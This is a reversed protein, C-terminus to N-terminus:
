GKVAGIMVGKAFYKQLFPYVCLIPITSIVIASYKLTESVAQKETDSVGASMEGADNEILIERLLLQLPYKERNDLYLSATFWSSWAAVLYYLVVVALSAKTLPLFIKFLIQFHRAGDLRASEYLSEPVAAFATRLVILNYTTLAGPLIISWLSNLLGLDRILMYTPVMGGNFYMTFVIFLMIAKRIRLEKRTLAYAAFSTLIVNLVLQVVCIFLTNGYSQLLIPYEFLKAYGDLNFDLPLLLAGSHGLLSYGDSFSAMIVHYMPYVCAIGLASLIIANIIRFAIMGPSEKIKM